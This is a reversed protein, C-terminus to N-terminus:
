GRAYIETPTKLKLSWHPRLENYTQIAQQTAKKAAARNEFTQDLLFEGKLIGNIREAHANDYPNGAEGMSIRIHKNKLLNTYDRSCYQVGRDSHHLLNQYPKAQNLAQQLAELAGTIELSLELSWGLIKRSFLDSLLFLYLFKDRLRLYTIDTVWAQNCGKIKSDALLNKYVRYHHFSNTTRASRRLPKILLDHARLLDFFGDRGLKFNLREFDPRLLHYLKKGGLRPMRIRWDLVLQLVIEERFGREGDKAQRQYVAQRSLEFHHALSTM